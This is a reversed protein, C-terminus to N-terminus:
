RLPADATHLRWHNPHPANGLPWGRVAVYVEMTATVATTMRARHQYCCGRIHASTHKRESRPVYSRTKQGARQM